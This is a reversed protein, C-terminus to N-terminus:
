IEELASEIEEDTAVDNDPMEDSPDHATWPDSM